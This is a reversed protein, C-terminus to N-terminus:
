FGRLFRMETEDNAGAPSRGMLSLDIGEEAARLKGGRPKVIMEYATAGPDFAPGGPPCDDKATEMVKIKRVSKISFTLALEAGGSRIAERLRRYTKPELRVFVPAEPTVTIACQSAEPKPLCSHWAGPFPIVGSLEALSLLQDHPGVDVGTGSFSAEYLVARGAVPDELFKDAVNHFERHAVLRTPVEAVPAAAKKGLVTSQAEGLAASGGQGTGAADEMEFKVRDGASVTGQVDHLRATAKGAQVSTVVCRALQVLHRRGAVTMESFIGCPTGVSVATGRGVDFTVSSGKVEIVRADGGPKQAAAETCIGVFATLITHYAVLRSFEFAPM